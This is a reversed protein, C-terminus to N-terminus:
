PLSRPEPLSPRQRPESLHCRGGAEVEGDTSHTCADDRPATALVLHSAIHMANLAAASAAPTLSSSDADRKGKGLAPTGDQEADPWCGALAPCLDPAGQLSM